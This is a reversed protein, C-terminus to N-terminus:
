KGEEGSEVSVGISRFGDCMADIFEGVLPERPMRLVDLAKIAVKAADERTVSVRPAALRSRIHAFAKKARKQSEPGINQQYTSAVRLVYDMEALAREDADTSGPSEAKGKRVVQLRASSGSKKVEEGLGVKTEKTDVREAYDDLIALLDAAKGRDSPQRLRVSEYADEVWERLEEVREKTITM